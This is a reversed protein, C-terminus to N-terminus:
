FPYVVGTAKESYEWLRRAVDEDRASGVPQVLKPYGRSEALRPGYFSGSEAEPAVAAYLEPLAGMKASQALLVNGVRM